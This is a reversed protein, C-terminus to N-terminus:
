SECVLQICQRIVEVAELAAEPDICLPPTFKIYGRGTPFMMVGRRIAEHAVADALASDPKTSGPRNFHMSIFLGRGHVSLIRHPNDEQIKRLQELVLKGTTESAKVLQEDEIICLNELAAAACVPNGGHTTSMEGPAPQDMLWKPGLVASVPLSSSLGKGLAILDPVVGIHEHAYFKGTRGCGSQVEDFCILIDNQRAWDAMAQAFDTPIPWTTWGPMPEVIIGAIHEPGIGEQHLHIVCQDFCARNCPENREQKWPNHLCFPFPIQYHHVQQRQIWDAKQPVGSALSASMTRGHYGDLFSLIGIKKPHLSRGHRRMLLIASETAETGGSYLLAKSDPIPSLHVLKELLNARQLAPFAYTALLKQDLARRIAECIRPHAHGVNAVVIGSTLDIWQNGQGDSVLFGEAKHWWIPSMGTMSRPELARLREIMPLTAPAPIPTVIRRWRTEVRPGDISALETPIM